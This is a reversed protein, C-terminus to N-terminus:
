NVLAVHRFVHLSSIFVLNLITSSLILPFIITYLLALQM